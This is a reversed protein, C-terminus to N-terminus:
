IPFSHTQRKPVRVTVYNWLPEFQVPCTLNSIGQLLCGRVEEFGIEGNGDRDQSFTM